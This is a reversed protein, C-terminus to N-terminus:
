DSWTDECLTQLLSTLLSAPPAWSLVKSAIARILFTIIVESLPSCSRDSSSSEAKSVSPSISSSFFSEFYIHILSFIDFLNAKNKPSFM